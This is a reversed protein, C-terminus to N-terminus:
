RLATYGDLKELHRDVSHTSELGRPDIPVECRSTYIRAAKEVPVEGRHRLHWEM